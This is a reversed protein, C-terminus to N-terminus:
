RTNPKESAGAPFRSSTNAPRTESEADVWQCHDSTSFCLRQALRHGQTVCSFAALLLLARPSSRLGCRHSGRSFDRRFFFFSFHLPRPFLIFSPFPPPPVYVRPSSKVAFRVLRPALIYMCKYYVRLKENTREKGRTNVLAGHCLPQFRAPVRARADRISLARRTFGCRKTAGCHPVLVRARARLYAAARGEGCGRGKIAIRRKNTGRPYPRPAGTVSMPIAVRLSRRSKHTALAHAIDKALSCSNLLIFIFIKSFVKIM